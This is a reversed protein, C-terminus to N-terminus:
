AGLLRHALLTELDRRGDVIMVVNVRGDVVRYIVRYPKFFTQRFDKVGLALLERPYSGRDPFEALSNTVELLRDLVHQANEISDFEAIFDCIAELDQEAGYTLVVEFRSQPM